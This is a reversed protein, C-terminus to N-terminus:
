RSLGTLESPYGAEDLMGTWKEGVYGSFRNSGVEISPVIGNGDFHSAFQEFEEKSAIKKETFPIGRARLLKRADACLPCAEGTYLTVPHRRAAERVAYPPTADAGGSRFDRQRTAVSPPPPQDSYHKRGNEDTWVYTQALAAGSLSLATLIAFLRM